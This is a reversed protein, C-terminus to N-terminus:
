CSRLFSRPVRGQAGSVEALGPPRVALALGFALGSLRAAFRGGHWYASSLLCRGVYGIEVLIQYRQYLRM